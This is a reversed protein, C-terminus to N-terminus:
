SKEELRKHSIEVSLRPTILKIREGFQMMVDGVCSFPNNMNDPQVELILLPYEDDPEYVLNFTPNIGINELNTKLSKTIELLFSLNSINEFICKQTLDDEALIGGCRLFQQSFANIVRKLPVVTNLIQRIPPDTVIGTHIGSFSLFSSGQGLDDKAIESNKQILQGM